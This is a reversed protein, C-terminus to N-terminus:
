SSAQAESSKGLLRRKLKQQRRISYVVLGIITATYPICQILESPIRLSQAMNSIADFIGFILSAAMTGLPRTGGMAEAALAIYGRGAVMNTSFTNLYGMSMYAGALSAFVGSLMVATFKTRFVPIGASRATDESLGAARIRTGLRTRYLFVFVFAVLLFSLYTMVNHGSIIKGLVPIDQILPIHIKPLSLSQLSTSVGKEGTIQFLLFSGLGTAMINMAIGAVADNAEMKLVFFGLIATFIGGSVVAALLGLWASQTWASIVVGALASLTMTGELALNCVGANSAIVSGLAALLIPTTVRLISYLFDTSFILDWFQSM